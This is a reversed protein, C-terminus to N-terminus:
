RFHTLFSSPPRAHRQWLHQGVAQAYARAPAYAGNGAIKQAQRDRRMLRPKRQPREGDVDRAREGDREDGRPKQAVRPQVAPHQQKQHRAHAAPEGRERREGPLRQLKDLATVDQHGASVDDAAARQAKDGRKDPLLERRPQAPRGGALPRRAAVRAPRGRAPAAGRLSCPEEPEHCSRAPPDGLPHASRERQATNDGQAAQGPKGRRKGPSRALSPAKGRCYGVNAAGAAACANSRPTAPKTVAFSRM